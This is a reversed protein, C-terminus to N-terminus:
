DTAPQVKLIQDLSMNSYDLHIDYTAAEVGDRAMMHQLDAPLDPCDTLSQPSTATKTCSLSAPLKEPQM